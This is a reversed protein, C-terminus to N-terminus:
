SAQKYKKLLDSVERWMDLHVVVDDGGNKAKARAQGMLNELKEIDDFPKVTPAPRFEYFPKEKAADLKNKTIKQGKQAYFRSKEDSWSVGLMEKIWTAVARGHYPSATALSTFLEACEDAKSADRAWEAAISCGLAHIKNQLKGADRQILGIHHKVEAFKYMRM